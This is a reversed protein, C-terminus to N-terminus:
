RRRRRGAAVALAGALGLAALGGSSGAPSRGGPTACACGSDDAPAAAADAPPAPEDDGPTEAARPVLEATVDDYVGDTDGANAIQLYADTAGEPVDITATYRAGQTASVKADADHKVQDSWTIPQGFKALVVPTYPTGGGGLLGAAGAGTDRVLFSLTIQGTAGDALRVHVQLIGPALDSVGLSQLGPSAFGDLSRDVAKVGQGVDVVRDCSPLVGRTTMAADLAQAGAPLDTALTAGFLKALDDYGLDGDGPSSRMAKYLAADFKPRDAEGLAQRADWLAGSFLTSDAHPEGIVDTPCKATNALSRIVSAGAALDKSAYEGVDPDGTIASSFYDALGENMAAPADIAGRADLHWAGLKLTHDVVAHTFEHYVVDGDYSYDRQPGQGFWLAGSKMGYLQEFLEGLGGVAPSFFANSFPELATNPDAALAINGSTIGAPIQLNAIVPLPKDVVVQADPVGQLGRFFEYAKSAHYYMSVESFTDSRAADSGPDDAPDYVFDGSGDPAATQVLDCVHVSTKFGGFSIPKVTKQDICNTSSVFPNTLTAGDPQIPLDVLELNPTKTPNFRYVNAKAFVATDRAELIRGDTADVIVRPATPLGAPVLPLVAWALRAGGSRLPWVVLHADAETAGLASVGSAAAAAARASVRPTVSAPLDREVDIATLLADGSASLRVAAGRGIVPLGQHTQEFRVIADGDGFRATTTPALAARAGSPTRAVAARALSVLTVRDAALASAGAGAARRAGVYLWPAGARSIVTESKTATKTATVNANADALATSPAATVAAFLALPLAAGALSALTANRM